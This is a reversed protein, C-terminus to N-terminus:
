DSDLVVEDTVLPLSASKGKKVLDFNLFRYQLKNKDIWYLLKEIKELFDPISEKNVLKSYMLPLLNIKAPNLTL